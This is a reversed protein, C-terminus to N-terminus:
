FPLDEPNIESEYSIEPVEPAQASQSAQTSSVDGSFSDAMDSMAGLLLVKDAIIESTYRKEGEPTEWSRTTFAGEVYIRQGKKITEASERALNSWAVINHFETEEQVGADGQWRMNTAVGFSCVSEGGPTQRLEIDRTMNGILSVRNIGGFNESREPVAAIQNKADLMIIERAIVKAKRRKQGKDDEWEDTKLRGAIYVQSGKLLYQDVIEAQKNWLVVTHYSTTIQTQNNDNRTFKYKVQLNLDTVSKGSTTQRLEPKETVHGILIINNLSFAM